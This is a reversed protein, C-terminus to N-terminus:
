DVIELNNTPILKPFTRFQDDIRKKEKCFSVGFICAAIVGVVAMVMQLSVWRNAARGLEDSGGHVPFGSMPPRSTAPSIPPLKPRSRSPRDGDLVQQKATAYEEPTIAGKERLESLRELQEIIDM